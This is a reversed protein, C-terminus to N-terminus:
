KTLIHSQYAMGWRPVGCALVLVAPEPGEGERVGVDEEDTEGEHVGAGEVVGEVLPEGLGLLVAGVGDLDKHAGFAIQEFLLLVHYVHPVSGDDQGIRDYAM